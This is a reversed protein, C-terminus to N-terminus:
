RPPPPAEEWYYSDLREIDASEFPPEAGTLIGLRGQTRLLLHARVVRGDALTLDYTMPQRARAGPPVVSALLDDPLPVFRGQYPSSTTGGPFGVYWTQGAPEVALRGTVLDVLAEGIAVCPGTDIENASRIVPPLDDLVHWGAVEKVRIPGAIAARDAAERVLECFFWYEHPQWKQEYCDLDLGVNGGLVATARWQGVKPVWSDSVDLGRETLIDIMYKLLVGLPEDYVWVLRDDFSVGVTKTV